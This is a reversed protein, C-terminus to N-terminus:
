TDGSRAATGDDAARLWQIMRSAVPAPLAPNQAADWATDPDRLLRVLTPIPLRPHSVAASRVRGDSDDLLHEVVTPSLRPDTAARLRVQPDADRAARHVTETTSRPDELALQRMRPDPDDAFRLLGARPFRPHNLPRGPHTLSGTWWRWVRLLMEAPADDCSEALFLQVIRDDDRALHEVVDAPLRRARAVSRRVLPHASAALRRMAAPNDHLAVVWALAHARSAPDFDFDIGAREEETLDARQAIVSRVAADTHRALRDVLKRPLWPNAALARLVAPDGDAALHEALAPELRCTAAADAGFRERQFVSLPMPHDHHHRLLARSRVRADPDDLLATRAATDLHPWARTCAARRVAPEPDAALATLSTVSLATLEAAEERIRASPDAALADCVVTPLAGRQMSSAGSTLRWRRREDREQLILRVWQDPTLVAPSEALVERVRAEPHALAAEVVTPSVLRGLALHSLGLLAALQEATATRRSALGHAWATRLSPSPELGDLLYQWPDAPMGETARSGVISQGEVATSHAAAQRLEGIGTVVTLRVEHTDAAVRVVTNGDTSSTAFDPRGPRTGFVGALDWHETLRVRVWRGSVVGVEGPQVDVLFTGREDFLQEAEALGHWQRNM